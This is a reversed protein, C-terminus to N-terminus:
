PSVRMEEPSYVRDHGPPYLQDNERPMSTELQGPWYLDEPSERGDNRAHLSPHAPPYTLTSRCAHGELWRCSVGVVVLVVM